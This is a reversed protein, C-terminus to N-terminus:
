YPYVELSEPLGLYFPFCVRLAMMSVAFEVTGLDGQVESHVNM